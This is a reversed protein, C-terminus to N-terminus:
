ILIDRRRYLIYSAGIAAASAALLVLINTWGIQENIVIDAASVYHFPTLYGLFEMKESLTALVDCFYFALVLGISTPMASRRRTFFFALLFGFCAFALHALFPAALLRLLIAQSYAASVYSKFAALASLGILANFLLIYILLALLKGTLVQNRSVPRALLFEITKEEEEKAMIGAGLIAAYISGFLLIMVYIETGYYGLPDNLSLRDLGFVKRMSEPFLEVYQDLQGEFEFAGFASMTFFTLFMLIAGWILLSRRNVRLERLFVPKM